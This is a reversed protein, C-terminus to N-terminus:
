CLDPVHHADRAHARQSSLRWWRRRMVLVSWGDILDARELRIGQAGYAAVARERQNPLLGSLLLTAGPALLPALEPALRMLPEALINAVILDFPARKRIKAHRVGSAAVVRLLPAVRNLKANEAAIRVARPDIDTALVPRRLVKALAIALVGSGTGLDLPNAYRRATLLRDLAILCGATTAHHGTGFAQGADIQIAISGSPIRGRDHSGHVVFRGATVPTLTKQSEAVWDIDPLIDICLPATFADTGLRDRLKAAVEDAESSNFYVDVCWLGDGGESLSIVAGTDAWDRELFNAIRRAEPLAATLNIRLM